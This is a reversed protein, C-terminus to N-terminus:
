SILCAEVREQLAELSFPKTLVSMGKGLNNGSVITQEAYGTIFIISLNCRVIRAADAVQRGNMGGPLGVDTILLDIKADSNIVKMASPGDVAELVSYGAGSLLDCVMMRVTPADDVVLVAQEGCLRGGSEVNTSFRDEQLEGEYVPLYICITTGKGVESDIRIQGGTQRVFGYAMSLGLGTGSGLPKTTFFPEFARAVVGSAMGVGDDTVCVTIYRGPTLDLETAEIGLLTKNATDLVLKGGNPMADRANICLNILANELQHPDILTLWLGEHGEVKLEVGPGITRAVLEQMDEILHNADVPKPSLTQRRSFALLRQTLAAARKAAGLAADAYRPIADLKGQKLRTDLLELSGIIGALLNNFDHAIGGTLQGVAEMKQSQRLAEETQRQSTINRGTAYFEDEARVISWGFTVYSGDAARLRADVQQSTEGALLRAWAEDVADIDDPHILEASKTKALDSESYGLEQQWAPNTRSYAGDSSGVVFLDRSMNWIRDREQTRQEVRKELDANLARLAQEARRREMATRTRDAVEQVFTLITPSWARPTAQNVYLIAVLGGDENVPLNIFSCASVATLLEAVHATRVDLAANECIVTEGRKLDDIYDGFDRFQVTTQLPEVGEANWGREVTITEAVPDITGYGARSVNLWRGLLEGAAYAIDNPDDLERFSNSLEILALRNNEPSM